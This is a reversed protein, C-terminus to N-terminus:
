SESLATFYGPNDKENFPLYRVGRCPIRLPTKDGLDYIGSKMFITKGPVASETERIYEEVTSVVVELEKKWFSRPYVTRM